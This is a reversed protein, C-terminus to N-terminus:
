APPPRPVYHSLLRELQEIQFPKLLFGDAGWLPALDKVSEDASFLVIATSATEHDARVGRVLTRVDLGPMHLDLLVLGPRASRITRLANPAASETEVSHGLLELLAATSELVDLNDDVVLVDTM